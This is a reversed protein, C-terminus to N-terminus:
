TRKRRLVLWFGERVSKKGRVGIHELVLGLGLGLGLNIKMTLPIKAHLESFGVLSVSCFTTLTGKEKLVEQLRAMTDKKLRSEM